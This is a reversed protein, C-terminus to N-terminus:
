LGDAIYSDAIGAVIIEGSQEFVSRREGDDEALDLRCLGDTNYVQSIHPSLQQHWPGFLQLAM